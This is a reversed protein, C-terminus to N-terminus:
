VAERQRLRLLRNLLRLRRELSCLSLKGVVPGLQSRSGSRGRARGYRLRRNVRVKGGHRVRLRLNCARLGLEVREVGLEGARAGDGRDGVLLVRELQALRLGREGLRLRGQGGLVSILDSWFATVLAVLWTADSLSWAWVDELEAAAWSADALRPSWDAWSAYELLVAGAVAETTADSWALM